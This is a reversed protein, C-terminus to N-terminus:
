HTPPDTSGAPGTRLSQACGAVAAAVCPSDDWRKCWGYGWDRLAEVQGLGRYDLAGWLMTNPGEFRECLFVWAVWPSLSISCLLSPNMYVLVRVCGASGMYYGWGDWSVGETGKAFGGLQQRTLRSNRTIQDKADSPCQSAGPHANHYAAERISTRHSHPKHANNGCAQM